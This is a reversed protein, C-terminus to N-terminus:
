KLLFEKEAVKNGNIQLELKHKGPYLTRTSMQKLPHKKTVIISEGKKLAVKKLKFVKQNHGNRAKNYFHILYDILLREDKQATITFSFELATGIVVQDDKIQFNSVSVQPDTSFNLFSIADKDGRKVLTRLSHNIIYEMEKPDQKESTQWKKLLSFVLSPDIKSLDNVHNAVSRTVYRTKDFFLNDLIPVAEKPDIVIKQAWPLKPRTGESTLRRVHYHDDKSWTLITKMTEEPFANIFYRISEEASFRMTMQRLAELSFALDKKNCGNKAVFDTYPAYIFEGFDNDTKTPDNPSPLSALLIGVAERYDQPLFVKLQESMWRIRPTLELEPFRDVVTRIFKKKEFAPYVVAIQEALKTVRSENFLYDKLLFKQEKTDM